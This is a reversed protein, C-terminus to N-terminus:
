KVKGVVQIIETAEYCFDAPFLQLCFQHLLIMAVTLFFKIKIRGRIIELALHNHGVNKNGSADFNKM